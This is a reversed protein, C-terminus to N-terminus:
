FRSSSRCRWICHGGALRLVTLPAMQCDQEAIQDVRGLYRSLEVRLFPAINERAILSNGSFLHRTAIGWRKHFKLLLPSQNIM